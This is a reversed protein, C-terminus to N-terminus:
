SCGTASAPVPPSSHSRVKTSLGDGLTPVPVQVIVEPDPVAEKEGLAVVGPAVTVTLEYPVM